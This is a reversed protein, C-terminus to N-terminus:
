KAQLFLPKSLMSKCASAGEQRKKDMQAARGGGFGCACAAGRLKVQSWRAQEVERVSWCRGQGVGGRISVEGSRCRGVCRYALRVLSLAVTVLEGCTLGGLLPESAGVLAALAPGPVHAGAAALSSLVHPVDSASLQSKSSQALRRSPILLSGRGRADTNGGHEACSVPGARLYRARCM